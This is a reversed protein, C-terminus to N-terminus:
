ASREPSSLQRYTREAFALSLKGPMPEFGRM